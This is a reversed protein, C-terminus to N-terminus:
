SPAISIALVSSLAPCYGSALCIAWCIMSVWCASISVMFCNSGGPQGQRRAPLLVLSKEWRLWHRGVQPGGVGFELKSHVSEGAVVDVGSDM